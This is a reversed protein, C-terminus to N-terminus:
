PPLIPLGLDSATQRHFTLNFGETGERGAGKWEGERGGGERGEDQRVRNVPNYANAVMGVYFSPIFSPNDISSQGLLLDTPVTKIM